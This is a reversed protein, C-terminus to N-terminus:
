ASIQVPGDHDMAHKDSNATATDYQWRSQYLDASQPSSHSSSSSSSSPPRDAPHQSASSPADHQVLLRQHYQLQEQLAMLQKQQAKHALLAASVDNAANQDSSSATSPATSPRSEHKARPSAPTRAMSSPAPPSSSSSSAPQASNASTYSPASSLMDNVRGEVKVRVELSTIKERLSKNRKELYKIYDVAKFLVTSKSNNINKLTPVIDTLDKFGNRITSRRKQESAIHNNRKEEETLLEKHARTRRTSSSVSKQQLEHPPSPSSSAHLHSALGQSPLGPHPQHPHHHLPHHHQQQQQLHPPQQQRTKADNGQTPLPYPSHQYRSYTSAPQKSIYPAAVQHGQQLFIANGTGNAASTAHQANPPPPPSVSSPHHHHQPAPPQSMAFNNLLPNDRAQQQQVVRNLRQHLQKQQDLSQLISSRRFEDEEDEHPAANNGHLSLPPPAGDYFSPFQHAVQEANDMQTDNDVFFADLFQSFARQDKEDLLPNADQMSLPQPELDMDAPPLPPADHHHHHQHPAHSHHPPPYFYEDNMPVPPLESPVPMSFGPDLGFSIQFDEFPVPERLPEGQSYMWDSTTYDM